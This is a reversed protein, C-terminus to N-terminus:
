VAGALVLNEALDQQNPYLDMPVSGRGLAKFVTYRACNSSDGRCYNRKYMDAMAPMEAMKDNFFLCTELCECDRM